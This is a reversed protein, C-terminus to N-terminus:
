LNHVDIQGDFVFKAPGSLTVDTFTNGDKRRFDITLRDGSRVSVAIPPEMVAIASHVVACAAMGTGCALTEREVGREYTRLAIGDASPLM